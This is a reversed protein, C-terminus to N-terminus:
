RLREREEGEVGAQTLAALLEAQTLTAPRLPLLNNLPHNNPPSPPAIDATTVAPLHQLLVPDNENHSWLCRGLKRLRDSFCQLSDLQNEGTSCFSVKSRVGCTCSPIPFSLFPSSSQVELVTDQQSIKLTHPHVM